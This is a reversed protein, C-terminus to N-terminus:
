TYVWHLCLFLLKCAPMLVPASLYKDVAVNPVEDPQTAAVFLFDIM